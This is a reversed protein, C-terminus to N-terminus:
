RPRARSAGGSRTTRPAKASRAAATGGSVLLALTLSIRLLGPLAPVPAPSGVLSTCYRAVTGANTGVLVSAPSGFQGPPELIVNRVESATPDVAVPTGVTGAVLDIPYLGGDSAGVLAKGSADTVVSSVAAVAPGPSGAAPAGTPLQFASMLAASAGDDRLVHIEGFFDVVAVLRDGGELDVVTPELHVPVGLAYSWLWAGTAAEYAQVEGTLSAVYLRGGLLVPPAQIRGAEVSWEPTGTILDLAWLSHQASSARRESAFYLRDQSPDVVLGAIADVEYPGSSNFGWVLAGTSRKLAVVGNDTRHATTSCLDSGGPAHATGALVLDEDHAAQFAPTGDAHLAYAPASEFRDNPCGTRQLSAVWGEQPNTVDETRAHVAGSETTWFLVPEEDDVVPVVTGGASAGSLDISGFGSLSTPELLYLHDDAATVRGGGAALRLDPSFTTVDSVALLGCLEGAAPSGVALSALLALGAVPGLGLLSRM